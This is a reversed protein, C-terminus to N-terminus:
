IKLFPSYKKAIFFLFNPGTSKEFLLKPFKNKLHDLINKLVDNINELADNINKAVEFVSKTLFVFFLSQTDIQSFLCDHHKLSLCSNQKQKM